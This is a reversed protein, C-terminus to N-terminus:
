KKETAPATKKASKVKKGSKYKAAIFKKTRLSKFVKTLRTRAVDIKNVDYKAIIRTLKLHAKRPGKNLKAVRLAKAPKRRLAVSGQLTKLAVGANKKGLPEIIIPKDLLGSWKPAHINILNGPEATFVKGDSALGKRLFSNNKGIIQWALTPSVQM